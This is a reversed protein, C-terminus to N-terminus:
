TRRITSPRYLSRGGASGTAASLEKRRTELQALYSVLNGSSRSKGDSSVDAQIAARVEGMHLNLRALRAAATAYTAADEFDHYTWAM